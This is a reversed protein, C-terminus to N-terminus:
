IFFNTKVIKEFFPDQIKDKEVLEVKELSKVKKNIKKQKTNTITKGQIIYKIM